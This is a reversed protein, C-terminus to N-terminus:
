GLCSVILLSLLSMHWVLKKSEREISKPPSLFIKYDLYSLIVKIKVPVIYLVNWMYGCYSVTTRRRTFDKSFDWAHCRVVSPLKLPWSSLIWSRISGMANSLAYGTDYYETQFTMFFCGGNQYYLHFCLHVINEYTTSISTCLTCWSDRNKLLPAQPEQWDFPSM